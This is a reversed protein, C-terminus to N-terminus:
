YNDKNILNLIHKYHIHFIQNKCIDKITYYSQLTLQHRPHLM